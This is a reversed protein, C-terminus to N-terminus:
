LPSDLNQEWEGFNDLLLRLSLAFPSILNLFLVGSFTHRCITRFCSSSSFLSFPSPRYIQQQLTLMEWSPSLRAPRSFADGALSGQGWGLVEQLAPGWRSSAIMSIAHQSSFCYSSFFTVTRHLLHRLAAWNSSFYKRIRTLGSHIASCCWRNKRAVAERIGELLIICCLCAIPPVQPRRVEKRFVLLGGLHISFSM